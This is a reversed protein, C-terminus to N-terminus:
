QFSFAAHRPKPRVAAIPFAVRAPAQGTPASPLQALIHKAFGPVFESPDNTQVATFTSVYTPNIVNGIELQIAM